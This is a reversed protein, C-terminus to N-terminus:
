EGYYLSKVSGWTSEETPVVNCDCTSNGNVTNSLGSAPLLNNACDVMEIPYIATPVVPYTCCPTSLGQAFISVSMVAIPAGLCAGYGVGIGTQSNGVSPGLVNTDALFFAALMCPPVPAAFQGATAGGTLTHVVWVSLLGPIDTVNCNNGLPDAYTGFVGPQAVALSAGMVMVLTLLLVKKM